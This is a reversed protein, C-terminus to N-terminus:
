LPDLPEGKERRKERRKVYKTRVRPVIKVIGVKILILDIVILLDLM